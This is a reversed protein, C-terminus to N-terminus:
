RLALAVFRTNEGPWFNDDSVVLLTREGTPLTPGWSMGEYNDILPLPLDRFDLLLKKRVPTVTAGELSDVNKINTAGRTSMEFLKVNYGHGTVFGREIVLYRTPDTPHALIEPIGSDAFSGAPNPVAFLPEQPYAYQALPTGARTHVTVRSLGGQEPTPVPGDQLLPSEVASTLLAGGAAFTIAELVLNRRPGTAGTTIRYNDPLPLEGAYAGDRGARQVSPQIVADTPTPTGRPRNGEQSWWYKGTWPDVRIDEPDVTTGDGASSPPYVQGDPRLFPKTGTFRVDHVGAGDVDIEATYFRAAQRDSRDDSIMVWQGTREDRDIGSLGGVTTGRFESYQPITREGLFRVQSWAQDVVPAASAPTGTVVGSGALLGAVALALVGRLSRIRM